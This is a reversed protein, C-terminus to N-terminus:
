GLQTPGILVMYKYLM